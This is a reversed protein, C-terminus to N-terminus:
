GMVHGDEGPPSPTSLSDSQNRSSPLALRSKYLRLFPPYLVHTTNEPGEDVKRPKRSLASCAWDGCGLHSFAMQPALQNFLRRDGGDEPLSLIKKMPGPLSDRDGWVNSCFRFHAVDSHKSNVSPRLPLVRPRAGCRQQRSTDAGPDADLASAPGAWRAALAPAPLWPEETATPLVSSPSGTM